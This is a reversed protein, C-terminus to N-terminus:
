RNRSLNRRHLRSTRPPQASPPWIAEITTGEGITSRIRFRGGALEVRERMSSLGFGRGTTSTPDFGLGDDAIRLVLSDHGTLTISVSSATGHRVANTTAERIVRLIAERREATAEIGGEIELKLAAGVRGVVDQAAQAIATALPQDLPQSLAAIARRSEYLAREAASAVAQLPGDTQGIFDDLETVIFALEQALGDHFERAVRRREELVAAEVVRRAYVRIEKAAAAILALYFLLRLIDGSYVWNSYLSPFLLYNLAALAALALGPGLWALLPDRRADERRLFGALALLLLALYAAQIALIAANGELPKTASAVPSLTSDIALPLSTQFHRVLFCVAAVPLVIGLSAGVAARQRRAITRPAALGAATLLAAGLISTVSSSWTSFRSVQGNALLTPLALLFANEVVLVGGFALALILDDSRGGRRFRGFALYGVLAAATVGIAEVAVHMGQSRYAVDFGDVLWVLLTFVVGLGLCALAAVLPGATTPAATGFFSGGATSGGSPRPRM